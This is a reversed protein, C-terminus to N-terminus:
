DGNNDEPAAIGLEVEPFSEILMELYRTTRNVGNLWTKIEAKNEICIKVKDPLAAM